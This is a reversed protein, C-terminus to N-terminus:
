AAFEVSTWTLTLAIEGQQVEQLAWVDKLRGNRVVDKVPILVKGIAKNKDEAKKAIKLSVVSELLGAKDIVTIVLDSHANIMVFDFKDGWRPSSDNPVVTSRREAVKHTVKDHLSFHVYTDNGALHMCRTLTVSLLGKMNDRIVSMTSLRNFKMPRAPAPASKEEEDEDDEDGSEPRMFPYYKVRVTIKGEPAAKATNRKMTVAAALKRVTKAVTAKAEEKYLDYTLEMFGEEEMFEASDLPVAVMGLCRDSWGFDDDFVRFTLSQTEPDDVIFHFPEDDFVVTSGKVTKTRQPRGERVEAVAYVDNKGILDTKKLGEVKRVEVQLMGTPPAPLGGGEMLDVSFQNPYLMMNGIVSQAIGNVLEKVGPLAMLDLNNILTLTMDLHPPDLLSIHVAGLCPLTEVLPRITIRAVAHLQINRIVIPVYIVVPGLRIRASVRIHASSGWLLPAEMIVEDERTEYTKFGGIKMPHNGLDMKEIDISDVLPLGKAVDVLIPTVTEDVINAIAKDYHPWLTEIMRNVWAVQLLPCMRGLVDKQAPWAATSACGSVSNEVRVSARSWFSTRSGTAVPQITKGRRPSARGVGCVRPLWRLDGGARSVCGLESCHVARRLRWCRGEVGALLVVTPWVAGFMGRAELLERWARDAGDRGRVPNPSLPRLPSM